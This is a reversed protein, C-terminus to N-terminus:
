KFVIRVGNQTSNGLQTLRRLTKLLFESTFAPRTMTEEQLLSVMQINTQIRQVNRPQFGSLDLNEMGDLVTDPEV